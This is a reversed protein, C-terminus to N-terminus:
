SVKIGLPMRSIINKTNKSVLSSDNIMMVAKDSGCECHRIHGLVM